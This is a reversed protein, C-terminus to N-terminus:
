NERAKAVQNGGAYVSRQMAQRAGTLLSQLTEKTEAHSVGISLTIGVRDGWWRFEATRALGV